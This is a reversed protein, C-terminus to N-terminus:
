KQTRIREARELVKEPCHFRFQALRREDKPRSEEKSRVKKKPPEGIDGGSQTLNAEHDVSKSKRKGEVTTARKPQIAKRRSSISAASSSYRQTQKRVRKPRSSLGDNTSSATEQQEVGNVPDPASDDETVQVHSSTDCIDCGPLESHVWRLSTRKTPRADVVIAYKSRPNTAFLNVM